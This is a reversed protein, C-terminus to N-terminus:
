ILIQGFDYFDTENLFSTLYNSKFSMFNIHFAGLFDNDEILLLEM